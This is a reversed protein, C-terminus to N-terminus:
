WRRPPPPTPNRSRAAAWCAREPPTSIPRASWTTTFSCARSGPWKWESRRAAWRAASTRGGPGRSGNWAPCVPSVAPLCHRHQRERRGDPLYSQLLLMRGDPNMAPRIAAVNELSRWLLGASCTVATVLAMQAIVLGSLWRSSGTTRSGPLAPSIQKRWADSWPIAAGILPWRSFRSLVSPSPALTWASAMTRPTSDRM